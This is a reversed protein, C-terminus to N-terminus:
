TVYFKISSIVAAREAALGGAALASREGEQKERHRQRYGM